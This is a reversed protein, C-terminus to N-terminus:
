WFEIDLSVLMSEQMRGSAIQALRDKVKDFLTNSPWKKQLEDGISRLDMNNKMEAVRSAFGTEFFSRRMVHRPRQQCMYALQEDTLNLDKQIQHSEEKDKASRVAAYDRRKQRLAMLDEWILTAYELRRRELLADKKEKTM